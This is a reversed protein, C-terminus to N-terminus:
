PVDTIWSHNKPSCFCKGTKMDIQFYHMTGDGLAVLLYVIGEMSTLMISRSLMDGSIKERVVEKLDPLSRLAVSLDTWYGVACIESWQKGPGKIFILFQLDFLLNVSINDQM